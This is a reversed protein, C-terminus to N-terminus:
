ALSRALFPWPVPRPRPMGAGVAGAADGAGAKGAWLSVTGSVAWSLGAMFSTNRCSNLRQSGSRMETSGGRGGARPRPLPFRNSGLIAALWAAPSGPWGGRNTSFLAPQACVKGLPPARPDPHARDLVLDPKEALAQEGLVDDRQYAKHHEHERDVAGHLGPDAIAAGLDGDDLRHALLRFGGRPPDLLRDGLQLPLDAPHRAGARRRAQFAPRQLLAAGIIPLQQILHGRDALEGEQVAGAALLKTQRAPGHGLAIAGVEGAVDTKGFGRGLADDKRRGIEDARAREHRDRHRMGPEVGPNRQGLDVEAEQAFKEAVGLDALGAVGIDDICAALHQCARGLARRHGPIERAQRLDCGEQLGVARRQGRAGADVAVGHQRGRICHRFEAPMHQELLRGRLRQRRDAVLQHPDRQQDREAERDRNEGAGHQRPPHQDRDGRQAGARPPEAGAIEAMADFHAGLVLQLFQGVLEVAHGPLQLFGIGAEFGLDLRAGAIQRAGDVLELHELFDAARDGGREIEVRHQRRHRRARQFDGVGVRHQDVAIVRCPM